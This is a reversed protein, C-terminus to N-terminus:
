IDGLGAAAYVFPMAARRYRGLPFRPPVTQMAKPPAGVGSVLDALLAGTYTGMAVGNGHYAFGTFVGSMGPVPGCYPMRSATLCVMGSWNHTAEVNRWAPFMRDFHARTARIMSADARPSSFVGGRMGFLFRNDPLRRFYHLLNRTDYAMQDSTWGAAEQETLTLPRTVLVNSQAPMYRGAMWNPMTESSYGNTAFIITAAKIVGLPTAITWGSAGRELGIAPTRAYAKVGHERAARLMGGLYKQPNLGFGIPITLGGLFPGAMGLGRLEDRGHLRGPVGFHSEIESCEAELARMGRASHALITEGKSHRDADIYHEDLLRAVLDVAAVEARYWEQAGDRGYRRVLGGHDLRGGGLCCFGGNRGSAGFGFENADIIAVDVGGQGLRLAASLGTFGGGVILVDVSLDGSLALAGLVSADVSDHWWCGAIPGNSYAYDSFVRTM